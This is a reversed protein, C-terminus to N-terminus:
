KVLMLKQSDVYGESVMRVFYVGSSYNGANWIISHNGALYNQAVLTKIKKGSIDYISILVDSQFPVAFDITTSPNFPNPYASSLSFEQPTSAAMAISGMLFVGNNEWAPIAGSLEFSEGSGKVLKFTPIMGETCYSETEDQNDQGMAPVDM